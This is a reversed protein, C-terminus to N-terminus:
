LAGAGWARSKWEMVRSQWIEFEQRKLNSKLKGELFKALRVSEDKRRVDLHFITGHRNVKGMGLLGRTIELADKDKSVLFFAPNLYQYKKFGSERKRQFKIINTTFVGKSEIFGM